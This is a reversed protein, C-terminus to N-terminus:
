FFLSVQLTTRNIEQINRGDLTKFYSASLEIPLLFQQRELYSKVTSFSIKLEGSHSSSSDFISPQNFLNANDSLIEGGGQYNYFHTFQVGILDFFNVKLASFVDIKNGLKHTVQTKDVGLSIGELDPIRLTKQSDFQYTYRAGFTYEFNRAFLGGIGAEFFADVQGDGFSIDQLIDPNEVKGTPLITGFKVLGGFNGTEFVQHMIGAELDGPGQASWTGIPKTGYYDVLVTQIIGETIDPLGRTIQAVVSAEDEEVMAIVEDYNNGKTRKFDVNVVAEYMPLGFYVTTNKSLGFGFGFVNVQVQAQPKIEFSGIHFKNFAEPNIAKLEDFYNDLIPNAGYISDSDLNFNINNSNLIGASDFSNIISNTKISRYQISFRGQPLTDYYAGNGCIPFILTFLLVLTPLLIM